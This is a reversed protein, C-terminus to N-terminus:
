IPFELGKPDAIRTKKLVTRSQIGYSALAASVDRRAANLARLEVAYRLAKRTRALGDADPSRLADLEANVVAARGVVVMGARRATLYCDTSCFKEPRDKRTTRFKAGCSLCASMVVCGDLVILGCGFARTEKLNTM